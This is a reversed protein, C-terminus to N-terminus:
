LITLSDLPPFTQYAPHTECPSYFVLPDNDISPMTAISVREGNTNVAIGINHVAVPEGFTPYDVNGLIFNFAPTALLAPIHTFTNYITLAPAQSTAGLRIGDICEDHIECMVERACDTCAIPEPCCTIPTTWYLNPFEPCSNENNSMNFNADSIKLGAVDIGESVLTLANQHNTSGRSAREQAVIQVCIYM